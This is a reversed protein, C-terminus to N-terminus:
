EWDVFGCYNVYVLNAIKEWTGMYFIEKKIKRYINYLLFIFFILIFFHARASPGAKGTPRARMAMIEIQKGEPILLRSLKIIDGSAGDGSSRM